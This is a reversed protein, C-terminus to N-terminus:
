GGPKWPPAVLRRALSVVRALRDPRAPLCSAYVLSVQRLNPSRDEVLASADELAALARDWEGLRRLACALGLHSGADLPDDQVLRSWVAEAQDPRGLELLARAMTPGVASAVGRDRAVKLDVLGGGFDGADVRIMGRLEVWEPDEPSERLASTVDVLAEAARGARHKIRARTLRDAVRDAEFLAARHDGTASLLVARRRHDAPNLRAVAARLDARLADGGDPWGDFADPRDPWNGPDKGLALRARGLLRANSDSPNLGFATSADAEAQLPRDLALRSMAREALLPARDDDRARGLLLSLDAEALDARGIRLLLRIRGRISLDDTPDSAILSDYRALAASTAGSDAELRALNRRADRGVRGTPDLKSTAEYDKRAGVFDGIRQRTVGRQLHVRASEIPGSCVGLAEGLEDLAEQWRGLGVLVRARCARAWPSDTRLAVTADCPALARDLRGAEALEFALAFQHWYGDPELRTARDLWALASEKEDALKGLLYWRFCAPASRELNPEGPLGPRARSPNAWFDRLAQWPRKRNTFRLARDCYAVAVPRAEDRHDADMATAVVWFFLLDDVERLLRERRAEDLWKLGIRDNWDGRDLVGFPRFAEILSRSAEARDGVFGLLAFRLPEAQEFFSDALDRVAKSAEAAERRRIAEDRLSALDPRDAIMASATGFQAAAGQFEGRDAARIGELVLGRAEGERRISEAQAHILAVLLAVGAMALPVVIALRARHRRFWRAVRPALPERAFALPADDAVAQLDVALDAASAYRDDRDPALCRRVVAELAPPIPGAKLSLGPLEKRRHDLLWTLSEALTPATSVAEMPKSGLAELLVMGLSYVDARHDIGDDHGETLAELHEPAMYALTGGLKSPAVAEIEEERSLNFDLLMPMGDAAILVNSPKVDRHLVGRDHAHQLAEAMRAGWWAIARPFTRSELAKRAAPLGEGPLERGGIRDLAAVLDAGSKPELLAKDALLRALTVRGFFPMCLLHLGTARDTRYSHVPVIHTHQLRALTQPERSGTRSVKLAVPRDALQREQALFVRAFSGRGLEEVLRFGGITQGVSPFAVPNADFDPSTSGPEAVLDHIVLLERLRAAFEPFRAEYDASDPSEGAEERLCFDEYLLAVFADPHLTPYRDRYLEPRADEGSRRRLALDVRLIALLDGPRSKQDARLFQEPDPRRGPRSSKWASEFTGALGLAQADTAADWILGTTTSSTV